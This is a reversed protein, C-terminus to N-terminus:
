VQALPLYVTFTSGQGETSQVTVYGGHLEVIEKVVYLGIGIGGARGEQVNAARYFREFLQPLADQPIGIGQDRVEVCVGAGCDRVAVWVPAAPPSYKLANQILNQFVQELRMEDGHIVASQVSSQVEIVRGYLTPQAEDVVRNVLACVDVRGREISLQGAEIRSIDFLALIMRNLRKTQDAIIELTRQDRASLSQEQAVRRQLLQLNGLMSTLPTKLEHAALALFQDRLHLAKEAEKRALQLEREYKRRDRADFITTRNLVPTGFADRKQVSNILVPLHRGDRCVLDFAIENVFGQMRLLPAYHTEYFIKGGVTLLDQFRKGALLEIRQYGTWDLFTQNVKAFTGDLLTSVYGCPAHEYLDELSEELL